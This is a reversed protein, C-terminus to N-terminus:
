TGRATAPSAMQRRARLLQGTRIPSGHRRALNGPGQAEESWTETIQRKADFIKYGQNNFTEPVSSQTSLWTTMGLISCVCAMFISARPWDKPHLSIMM